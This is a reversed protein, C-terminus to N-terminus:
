ERAFEPEDVEIQQPDKTAGFKKKLKKQIKECGWVKKKGEKNVWDNSGKCGIKKVSNPLYWLGYDTDKESIELDNGVDTNSINLWKLKELDKLPKLSGTFRNYFDKEFKGKDSNDLYLEELNVFRSFVSLDHKEEQENEKKGIDNNHLGLYKLREPPLNDLFGLDRLYNNSVNLYSIKPCGRIRINELHCDSVSFHTLEPLDILEVHTLSSNHEGYINRLERCGKITLKGELNKNRAFLTTIENKKPYNVELWEQANQISL